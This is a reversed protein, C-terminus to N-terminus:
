SDLFLKFAPTKRNANRFKAKTTLLEMRLAECIADVEESTYSYNNKNSLNGLLEMQKILKNVRKEALRKFRENKTEKKPEPQEVQEAQKAKIAPNVLDRRLYFYIKKFGKGHPKQHLGKFRKVRPLIRRQVHHAVEHAVTIMLRDFIDSVECQGIVPHNNFSAYETEIGPKTSHQWYQLNIQIVHAGGYTAGCFNKDVVRTVEVAKDVDAKTIGLEYEKKKLLNMCKRVTKKIFIEYQKKSM